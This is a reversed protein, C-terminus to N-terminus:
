RISASLGGFRVVAAAARVGLRTMTSASPIRLRGDFVRVVLAALLSARM